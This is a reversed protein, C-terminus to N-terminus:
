YNEKLERVRINEPVDVEVQGRYTRVYIRM